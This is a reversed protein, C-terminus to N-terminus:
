LGHLSFIQIHMHLYLRLFLTVCFITFIFSYFTKVNLTLSFLFVIHFSAINIWPKESMKRHHILIKPLVIIYLPHSFVPSLQIKSSFLTTFYKSSSYWPILAEWNTSTTFFGGALGPSMLSAPKIRPDALDGPPHCPMESSYEQSSFGMICSGPMSCDMPDCLWVCSFQSLICM